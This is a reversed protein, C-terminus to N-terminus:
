HVARSPFERMGTIYISIAFYPLTWIALSYLHTSWFSDLPSIEERTRLQKFIRKCLKPRHNNENIACCPEAIILSFITEFYNGWMQFWSKHFRSNFAIFAKGVDEYKWARERHGETDNRVREREATQYNANLFNSYLVRPYDLTIKLAIAILPRRLEGCTYNEVPVRTNKVHRRLLSHFFKEIRWDESLDPLSIKTGMKAAHWM